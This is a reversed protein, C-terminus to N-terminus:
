LWTGVIIQSPMIPETKAKIHLNELKNENFAKCYYEDHIKLRDGDNEYLCHLRGTFSFIIIYCFFFTYEVQTNM